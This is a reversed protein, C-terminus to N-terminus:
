TSFGTAVPQPLDKGVDALTSEIASEVVESHRLAQHVVEELPTEAPGAALERTRHSCSTPDDAEEVDRPRLEV